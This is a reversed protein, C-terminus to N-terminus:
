AFDLAQISNEISLWREKFPYNQSLKLFWQRGRYVVRAPVHILFMRVTNPEEKFGEEDNLWMIWVMLNYAM